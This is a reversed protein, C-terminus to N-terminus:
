IAGVRRRPRGIRYFILGMGVMGLGLDALVTSEVGTRPLETMGSGGGSPAGQPGRAPGQAPGGKPMPAMPARKPVWRVYRVIVKRESQDKKKERMEREEREERTVEAAAVIVTPFARTIKSKDYTLGATSAITDQPTANEAVKASLAGTKTEGPQVPGLNCTAAGNSYSCDPGGNVYQLNDPLPASFTVPNAPAEGVNSVSFPWTVTQGPRVETTSGGTLLVLKARKTTRKVHKDSRVKERIVVRREVKYYGGSSYYGGGGGGGGGGGSPRYHTTGGGGGGASVPGDAWAAPAAALMPIVGPLSLAAIAALSRATRVGYRRSAREIM